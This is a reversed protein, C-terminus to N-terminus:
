EEDNTEVYDKMKYYRNGIHRIGTEPDYIEFNYTLELIECWLVFYTIM